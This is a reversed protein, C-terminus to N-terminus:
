KARCGALRIVRDAVVQCVRLSRMTRDLARCEFHRLPNGGRTPEFGVGEAQHVVRPTGMSPHGLPRLHCDQFSNPM